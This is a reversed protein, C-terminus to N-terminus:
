NPAIYYDNEARDPRYTWRRDNSSSKTYIGAKKENRMYSGYFINNEDIDVNAPLRLSQITPTQDLVDAGIYYVTDPIYLRSIRTNFFAAEQIVQLGSSLRVQQLSSCSAFACVGITTVSEPIFLNVLYYNEMFSEYPIVTLSSPEEFTLNRVNTRAFAGDPINTVSNTVVITQIKDNGAFQNPNDNLDQYIMLMGRENLNTTQAFVPFCALFLLLCLIFAKM